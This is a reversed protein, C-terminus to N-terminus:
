NILGRQTASERIADVISEITPAIDPRQIFAVDDKLQPHASFVSARKVWDEWGTEVLLLALNKYKDDDLLINAVAQPSMVGKHVNKIGIGIRRLNVAVELMQMTAVLQQDSNEANIDKVITDAAIQLLDIPLNPYGKHITSVIEASTMLRPTANPPPAEVTVPQQQPQQQPPPARQQQPNQRMPVDAYPDGQTPPPLAMEQPSPASGQVASLVQQIGGAQVFDKAIDKVWNEEKVDGSELRKKLEKQLIEDVFSYKGGSEPSLAMKRLEAELADIKEYARRLQEKLDNIREKYPMMIWSPPENNGGMFMQPAAQQPPTPQQAVPAVPMSEREKLRHLEQQLEGVTMQMEEIYERMRNAEREIREKEELVSELRNEAMESITQAKEAEVAVPQYANEIEREKEKIAEQQEIYFARVSQVEEESIHLTDAIETDSLNGEIMSVVAKISLAKSEDKPPAEEAAKKFLSM